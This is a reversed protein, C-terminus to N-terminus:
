DVCQIWTFTRKYYTTFSSITNFCMFIFFYFNHTYACAIAYSIWANCIYTCYVNQRGMCRSLCVAVACWMSVFIGVLCEFKHYGSYTRISFRQLIYKYIVKIPWELWENHVSKIPAAFVFCFLFNQLHTSAKSNNKLYIIIIKDPQFSCWAEHREHMYSICLVSWHKWLASNLSLLLLYERKGNM